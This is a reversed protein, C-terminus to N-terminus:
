CSVAIPICTDRGNQVGKGGGERLGELNDCLVPKQERNHFKKIIAMRIPTLHHRMTTKIQIERIVLLTSCRKRQRNAM